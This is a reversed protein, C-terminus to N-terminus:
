IRGARKQAITKDLLDLVASTEASRDPADIPYDDLHSGPAPKPHHPLKWAESPKLPKPMAREPTRGYDDEDSFRQTRHATEAQIEHGLHTIENIRLSSLLDEVQADFAHRTRGYANTDHSAVQADLHHMRAATDFNRIALSLVRVIVRSRATPLKGLLELRLLSDLLAQISTRNTLNVFGLDVPELHRRAIGSARGGAAANAQHEERYGPDHSLCHSAGRLAPAGCPTGDKTCAACSAM